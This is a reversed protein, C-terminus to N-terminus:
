QAGWGPLDERWPHGAPLGVRAELARERVWGPLLVPAEDTPTTLLDCRDEYGAWVEMRVRARDLTANRTGPRAAPDTLWDQHVVWTAAAV